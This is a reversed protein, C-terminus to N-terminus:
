EQPLSRVSVLQPPSPHRGARAGHGAWGLPRAAAELPSLGRRHRGGAALTLPPAPPPSFLPGELLGRGVPYYNRHEHRAAGIQPPGIRGELPAVAAGKDVSRRAADAHRGPEAEPLWRGKPSRSVAVCVRPTTAGEATQFVRSDRQRIPLPDALRTPQDGRSRPSCSTCSYLWVGGGCSQKCRGQGFRLCAPAGEEEGGRASGSSGSRCRRPPPPEEKVVALQAVVAAVAQVARTQPPPSPPVPRAPTADHLSASRPFLPAAGGSGGRRGPDASGPPRRRCVPTAAAATPAGGEGAAREHKGSDSHHPPPPRLHPPPHAGRKDRRKCKRAAPRRRRRGRNSM